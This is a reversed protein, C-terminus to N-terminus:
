GIIVQPQREPDPQAECILKRVMWPVNGEGLFLFGVSAAVPSEDSWGFHVEPPKGVQSLELAVAAIVHAISACRTIKIVFRGEEQYVQVLPVQEFESPDELSAELFVIPVDESLRHRQRIIQEKEVLRRNGPRHPVLV